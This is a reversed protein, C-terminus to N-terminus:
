SPAANLSNRISKQPERKKKPEFEMNVIFKQM